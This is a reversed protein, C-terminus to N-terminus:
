QVFSEEADILQEILSNYTKDKKCVASIKTLINQRIIIRDNKVEESVIRSQPENLGDENRSVEAQVKRNLKGLTKKSYKGKSKYYHDEMASNPVYNPLLEFECQFKLSLSKDKKHYQYEVLEKFYELYIEEDKIKQIMKLVLMDLITKEEKDEEQPLNNADLTTVNGSQLSSTDQNRKSSCPESGLSLTKCRDANKISLENICSSSISFIKQGADVDQSKSSECSVKKLNPKKDSTYTNSVKNHFSKGLMNKFVGKWGLEVIRNKNHSTNMLFAYPLVIMYLTMIQILSTYSTRITNYVIICYIINSSTELFSIMAKVYANVHVKRINIATASQSLGERVTKNTTPSVKRFIYHLDIKCNIWFHIVM